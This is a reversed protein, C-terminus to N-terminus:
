RFNTLCLDCNNENEDEKQVVTKIDNPSANQFKGKCTETM